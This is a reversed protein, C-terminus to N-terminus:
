STGLYHSTPTLYTCPRAARLRGHRPDVAGEEGPEEEADDEEGAVGLLEADELM